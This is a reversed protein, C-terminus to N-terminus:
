GLVAALTIMAIAPIGAQVGAGHRRAQADRGLGPRQIQGHDSHWV